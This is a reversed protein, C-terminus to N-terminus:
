KDFILKSIESNRGYNILYVNKNILGGWNNVREFSFGTQIGHFSNNLINKDFHNGTVAMAKLFYLGTDYGLVGYKPYSNIMDRQYWSRFRANFEKYEPSTTKVFFTSYIYTNLNHFAGMYDNVYTQWEPYGFLSVKLNPNSMVVSQLAPVMQKLDNSSGSVPVIVNEQGISLASAIQEIEDANKAVFSKYVMSHRKLETKLAAVFDAKDGVKNLLELFVIQNNKFRKCFLQSTESYLYSHPTNLQLVFPNTLVDDNKSTFPIVMEINYTKAFKAVPDIHENFVPGIILQVDALVADKLLNSVSQTGAGTDYVHLEVSLGDSKLKEIALLFGEYYEVFRRSQKSSEESSDDTMFPLMLAVKLTENNLVTTAPVEVTESKNDSPKSIPVQITMGLRIGTRLNPNLILLSDKTINFKRSISLVSENKRIMYDIYTEEKQDVNAKTSPEIQKSKSVEIKIVKGVLFSGATLGPNVDMIDQVSINYKNALQFLTERPAITHYIYNEVGADQPVKV